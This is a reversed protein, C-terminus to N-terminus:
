GVQLEFDGTAEALSLNLLTLLVWGPTALADVPAVMLAMSLM